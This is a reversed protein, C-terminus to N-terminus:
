IVRPISLMHLGEYNASARPLARKFLAAHIAAWPKVLRTSTAHAAIVVLKPPFIAASFRQWVQGFFLAEPRLDFLGAGTPKPFACLLLSLSAPSHKSWRPWLALHPRYQSMSPSIFVNNAWNWLSKLDIVQATVRGTYSRVMQFGDGTALVGRPCCSIDMDRGHRAMTATSSTFCEESRIM